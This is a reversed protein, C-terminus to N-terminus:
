YFTNKKTTEYFSKHSQTYICNNNQQTIHKLLETNEEHTGITIRLCNVCSSMSSRNRVVINNSLLHQYMSNGNNFRVLLFNADSAFVTQVSKKSQLESEMFSREQLITQVREETVHQQLAQIAFRQNISSVNYPPKTANWTEVLQASASFAYGLRVGALGHAKSLTRMVVLNQYQPLLSLASDQQSFEQYAEDVVVLCPVQDLITQLDRLPFANGTPNNPSCLFLIKIQKQSAIGQVCDRIINDTNLAFGQTLLPINWTEVNNIDAAVRYMGYTPECICIADQQPECFMRILLDIIEDSGNGVVLNEQQVDYKSIYSQHLIEKKLEVQLPDPYRNAEATFPLENADLFITNSGEMSTYEDRASSYPKLSAINPRLLQTINM